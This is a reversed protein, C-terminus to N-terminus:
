SRSAAATVAGQRNGKGKKRPSRILSGRELAIQRALYVKALSQYPVDKKNALNKLEALMDSPVQISISKLSPKLNPFSARQIKRSDFYDLPSHTAWFAREEDESKFLPVHNDMKKM